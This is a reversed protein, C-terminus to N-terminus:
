SYVEATVEAYQEVAIAPTVKDASNGTIRYTRGDKVRFIYDNQELLMTADTQVIFIAKSGVRGAILAESSSVPYIGALFPVGKELYWNPQGLADVGSVKNMTYCAEYFDKRSM